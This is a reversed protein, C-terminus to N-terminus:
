WCNIGMWGTAGGPGDAGAKHNSFGYITNDNQLKWALTRWTNEFLDDHSNYPTKASMSTDVIQGCNQAAGGNWNLLGLHYICQNMVVLDFPKGTKGIRFIGEKETKGNNWYHRDNGSGRLIPECFTESLSVLAGGILIRIKGSLFAIGNHTSPTNSADLQVQRGM